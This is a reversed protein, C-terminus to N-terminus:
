QSKPSPFRYCGMKDGMRKSCKRVSRSVRFTPLTGTSSESAQVVLSSKARLWLYNGKCVLTLGLASATLLAYRRGINARQPACFPRFWEYFSFHRKGYQPLTQNFLRQSLTQCIPPLKSGPRVVEIARMCIMPAAMNIQVQSFREGM